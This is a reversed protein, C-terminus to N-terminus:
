IFGVISKLSKSAFSHSIKKQIRLAMCMTLQLIDADSNKTSFFFPDSCFFVTVESATVWSSNSGLVPFESHHGQFPGTFPPFIIFSTLYNKKIQPCIRSLSSHGLCGENMFMWFSTALRKQNNASACKLFVNSWMHMMQVQSAACVFSPLFCCIFHVNWIECWSKVAM